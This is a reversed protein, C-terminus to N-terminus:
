TYTLVRCTYMDVVLCQRISLYMYDGYVNLYLSITVKYVNVLTVSTIIFVFHM